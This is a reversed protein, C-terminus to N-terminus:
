APPDQGDAVGGNTIWPAVPADSIPMVEAASAPEDVIDVVPADEAPEKTQAASLEYVTASVRFNDEKLLVGSKEKMKSSVVVRLVYDNKKAFACLNRMLATDVGSKDYAVDVALLVVNYVLKPGRLIECGMAGMIRGSLDAVVVHGETILDVLYRVSATADAQDKPPGMQRQSLKFINVVDEVQARRLRARPAQKPPKKAAM